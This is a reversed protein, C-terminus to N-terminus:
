ISKYLAIYKNVMNELDFKKVFTVGLSTLEAYKLPNALLAKINEVLQKEDGADFLFRDDPVLEMIGKVRSGLFAKGSALSELTVGSMGEYFSSLINIDVSKMLSYTDTRFGLFHIRDAVGLELSINEINERNNGEGAFLIHIKPDLYQCAKVLTLQDKPYRFSATMLILNSGVPIKLEQLLDSRNVIQAQEISSIDVGNEITVIRKSYGIWKSLNDSVSETVGIIKKYPAYLVKEIWRFYYKNRRKNQNSHETYVLGSSNKLGTAALAVWYLAPFLHTHIIDFNNNKLFSRLTFISIPSYLSIINLDHVIIGKDKVQQLFQPVSRSANFLLLEVELGSKIFLPLSDVILKEAGGKELAHTIILLKM